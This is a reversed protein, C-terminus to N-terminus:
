DKSSGGALGGDDPKCIAPDDGIHFARLFRQAVM